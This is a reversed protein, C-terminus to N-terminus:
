KLEGTTKVNVTFREFVIASPNKLYMKVGDDGGWAQAGAKSGIFVLIDHPQNTYVALSVALGCAENFNNFAHVTNSTSHPPKKRHCPRRETPSLECSRTDAVTFTVDKHLKKMTGKKSTRHMTKHFMFLVIDDTV